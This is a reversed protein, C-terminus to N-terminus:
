CGPGGCYGWPMRLLKCRWHAKLSQYGAKPCGSVRLLSGWVDVTHKLSSHFFKNTQAHEDRNVGSIKAKVNRAGIKHKARNLSTKGNVCTETSFSLLM